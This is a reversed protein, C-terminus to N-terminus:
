LNKTVYTMMFTIYFMEYTFTVYFMEYKFTVVIFTFSKAGSKQLLQFLKVM